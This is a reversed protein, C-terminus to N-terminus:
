PTTALKWVRGSRIVYLEGAGDVGFSVLGFAEGFEPFSREDLLLGDQIRASRIWGACYDGYLFHGQLEAIEGRYTVGGTISCGEAHTYEVVPFVLGSPDCTSDLGTCRSGEFTRWGLNPALDSLSIASIEERDSQGVDAIVMEDGDIWFRWPNRLGIAWIDSAGSDVDIRIVSGLATAGNQGHRLPDNGSGGDGLGLYLHGDPGFQIMGGNHNSYPQDVEFLVRESAADAQDPDASVTFESVRGVHDAAGSAEKSYSVYFKGTSAYDPHFAVALLGREGGTLVRGTLDLYPVPDVVGDRVLEVRGAREAVFVREDGEPAAVHIPSSFGSALEVLTLDPRPPPVLPTLGEARGLFSAMQQRLVYDDPCFRDNAPPNCGLTVGAAALKEIDAEFISGDDDIFRGEARDTYGYGRVLFAAMEGRTLRRDPCFRDNDPPNCGKTIGAAALKEIDAEFISTDDDSFPDSAREVLGLARALFAAMQGRTVTNQPCFRDNIPPNCGLTIGEAAIAEIMGEHVNGDDDVFTGGPPLEAAAPTAVLAAVVVSILLLHKRRM